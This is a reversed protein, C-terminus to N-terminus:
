LYDEPTRNDNDNNDDRRGPSEDSEPVPKPEPENAEPAQKSASDAEGRDLNLRSLEDINNGIGSDLEGIARLHGSIASETKGNEHGIYDALEYLDARLRDNGVRNIVLKITAPLEHIHSRLAHSEVECARVINNSANKIDMRLKVFGNEQDDATMKSLIKEVSVEKISSDVDNMLNSETRLLVQGVQGIQTGIHDLQLSAGPYLNRLNDIQQMYAKSSERIDAQLKDRFEKIQDRMQEATKEIEKALRNRETMIEGNHAQEPNDQVGEVSDAHIESRETADARNDAPDADIPKIAAEPDDYQRDKFEPPVDNNAYKPDIVVGDPPRPTFNDGGNPNSQTLPPTENDTNYYDVTRASNIEDNGTDIPLRRLEQPGSISTHGAETGYTSTYGTEARLAHYGGSSGDFRTITTGEATNSANGSLPSTENGQGEPLGSRQTDPLSNNAHFSEFANNTAPAEKQHATESTEGDRRNQELAHAVNSVQTAEPTALGARQADLTEQGRLDKALEAFRNAIAQDSETSGQYGSESGYGQAPQASNAGNM